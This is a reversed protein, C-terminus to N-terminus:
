DLNEARVTAIHGSRQSRGERPLAKAITIFTKNGALGQM